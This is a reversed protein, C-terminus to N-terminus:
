IADIREVSIIDTVLVHPYRGRPGHLPLTRLAVRCVCYQGPVHHARLQAMLDPRVASIFVVWEKGGCERWCRPRPPAFIDDTSPQWVDGVAEARLFGESDTDALLSYHGSEFLRLTGTLVAAGDDAVAKSGGLGLLCGLGLFARRPLSM